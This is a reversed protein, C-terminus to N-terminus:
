IEIILGQEGPYTENADNTVLFHYTSFSSIHIYKSADFPQIAV